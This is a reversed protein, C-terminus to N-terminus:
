EVIRFASVPTGCGGRAMGGLTLAYEGADLPARPKFVYTQAVDKPRKPDFGSVIEGYPGGDVPVFKDTAYRRKEDGVLLVELRYIVGIKEYMVLQKPSGDMRAAFELPEGKRIAIPSQAGEIYCFAKGRSASTKRSKTAELPALM